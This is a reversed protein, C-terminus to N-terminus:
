VNKLLDFLDPLNSGLMGMKSDESDDTGILEDVNTSFSNKAQQIAFDVHPLYFKVFTEEKISKAHGAYNSVKLSTYTHKKSLKENTRFAQIDEPYEKRVDVLHLLFWFEICPTTIFFHYGKNRCISLIDNMQKVPHSRYDRDVVIGFKDDKGLYENAIRKYELDIGVEKLLKEFNSRKEDDLSSSDELYQKVFEDTYESPIVKRMDDPLVEANRLLIYEELLELVQQPASSNDNKSRSLSHIHVRTKIGLKERYREILRFYDQETNNGEVALFVIRYPSEQIIEEPRDFMSDSRLRFASSM